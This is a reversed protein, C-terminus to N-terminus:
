ICDSDDALSQRRSVSEPAANSKPVHCAPITIEVLTGAYSRSRVAITGKMAILLKQVIVLGLGTGHSKTTYFPKFLNCQQQETMGSGNDEVQIHVLGGSRFVKVAIM